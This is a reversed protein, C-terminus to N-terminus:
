GITSAYAATLRYGEPWVTSSNVAAGDFSASEINKVRSLNAGRLDAGTFDAGFIDACGFSSNRFNAYPANVFGMNCNEIVSNRADAEALDASSLDGGRLKLARTLDARYFSTGFFGKYVASVYVERARLKSGHDYVTVGTPITLEVVVPGWELAQPITRCFNIGAGCNARSSDLTDALVATGQKFELRDRNRYPSLLDETVGKYFPIGDPYVVTTSM